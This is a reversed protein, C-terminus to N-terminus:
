LIRWRDLLGITATAAAPSPHAAPKRELRKERGSRGGLLRMIALNDTTIADVGLLVLENVRELDNVTWAFTLLHHDALWEMREGTILSERISVGDLGDVLEPNEFISELRPESGISLLRFVSPEQEGIRRLVAPDGSVVIVQRQGRHQALFDMVLAVFAPSSEKLDLKVAQAGSAAVWIRDLPPGRFLNDGIWTPPADHGAYLRGNVAVVDVEIVDAGYYIAQLASDIRDGSNHGVVFTNAYDDLLEADLDRYFHAPHLGSTWVEGREPDTVLVWFIYLCGAIVAISAIVVFTELFPLAQSVRDRWPAPERSSGNSRSM